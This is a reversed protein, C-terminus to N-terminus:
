GVVEQIAEELNRTEVWDGDGGAVVLTWGDDFSVAQGTGAKCDFAAAEVAVRGSDRADRLDTFTVNALDIIRINTASM